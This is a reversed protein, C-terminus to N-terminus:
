TVVANKHRDNWDNRSTLFTLVLCQNGRFDKGLIDSRLSEWTPYYHGNNEDLRIQLYNSDITRFDTQLQAMAHQRYSESMLRQTDEFYTKPDPFIKLFEAAQFKDPNMLEYKRQARRENALRDKLTPYKTSTMTEILSQETTQNGFLEGLLYQPDADPFMRQVEEVVFREQEDLFAYEPSRQLLVMISELHEADDRGVLAEAVLGAGDQQIAVNQKAEGPQVGGPVDPQKLKPENESVVKAPPFKPKPAIVPRVCQQQQQAKILPNPNSPQDRQDPQNPPQNNQPEDNGTEDAVKVAAEPAASGLQNIIIAIENMPDEAYKLHAFCVNADMDPFLDNLIAVLFWNLGTMDAAPEEPMQAEADELEEIAEIDEDTEDEPKEEKGKGIPAAKAKEEKKKKAKEEKEKKATEEKEKKAKEEKEKKAKEEKEKKEKEETNPRFIPFIVM